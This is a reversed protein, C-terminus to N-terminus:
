LMSEIEAAIVDYDPYCDGYTLDSMPACGEINTISLLVGNEDFNLTFYYTTGAKNYDDPDDVELSVSSKGVFQPFKKGVFKKCLNVEDNPNDFQIEDLFMDDVPWYGYLKNDDTDDGTFDRYLQEMDLSAEIHEFIESYFDWKGLPLSKNLADQILATHRDSFEIEVTDYISFDEGNVKVEVTFKGM